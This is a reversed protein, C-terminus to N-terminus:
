ATSAPKPEAFIVDMDFGTFQREYAFHPESSDASDRRCFSLHLNNDTLSYLAIHLNGTQVTPLINGIVNSPELQTRYKTLQEGLVQTYAPCNWDMGNYVMSDLVPHWTGNVPLQNKDNYPVAVRGSYEIGNVMPTSDSVKGDGVGIILNCTREAAEVSAVADDLSTTHQLINRVVSMWPEGQLKEPPTNPTGQGFSDDPFSVGIENISMQQNNMGTLVGIAGPWGINAFANQVTGEVASPHYVTMQPYNPFPGDTEYDLSRMHYTKGDKSAAGWSGFFSCSAKTLEPLMQLNLLLDYDVDPVADAIGQLEEFFEPPTFKATLEATLQLAFVIGKDVIVKKFFDPIHPFKDPLAGSAEETLYEFTGHVFESLEKGVLKGQAFGMEYPTGYVHVVPFRANDPGAMYLVGNEVTKVAEGMNPEAVPYDNTREGADPSGNCYASSASSLLVAVVVLFLCLNQMITSKSPTLSVRSQNPM